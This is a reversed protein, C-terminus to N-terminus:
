YIKMLGVASSQMKLPMSLKIKLVNFKLHIFERVKLYKLLLHSWKLIDLYVCTLCLSRYSKMKRNLGAVKARMAAKTKTDAIVNEFALVISPWVNLLNTFSNRHHGVFRTGGLKPWTYCHIDIACCATKIESKIKGSHKMVGFVAQYLNDTDSLACDTLAKGVSLEIRHNACHIKILWERGDHEMKVCLGNRCGTNVSAGDTTMDVLKTQYDKLPINGNEMFVSDIAKKLSEADTGGFEEM